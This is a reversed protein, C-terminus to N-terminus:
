KEEEQARKAIQKALETNSHHGSRIAIFHAVIPFGLLSIDGILDLVKHRVMEDSFRLGEPNLVEQGKIVVGNDLSGGKIVKKELLPLIEEYLSFTRSPAVEKVYDEENMVFTFFQSSLLTHGPYSLTYSFRLEKSPLAVLHVGNESWYVPEKVSYSKIEAPQDVIDAREIMEVFPMASGDGVPIEPGDVEIILNDIEFARLASLVHEVSQVIVSGKGLITCRPTGWIYDVSAPFSPQEPLDVRRFVVGTGEPAPIFRMRLPLGSFLGVGTLSISKGITKQPRTSSLVREQELTEVDCSSLLIVGSEREPLRKCKPNLRVSNIKKSCTFSQDKEWM